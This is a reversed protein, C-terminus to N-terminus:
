IDEKFRFAEQGTIDSSLISPAWYKEIHEVVLETGRFHSVYPPMEPNYMSDTMDRMLVVNIGLNAMQRIAFPRGLVCMNTHVGMIIMNQIDNEMFINYVEQGNDTIYDADHIELGSIQSSWVSREKCPQGNGCPKDCGGDSDDIPLASELETDLHCWQQLDFGEPGRHYPSEVARTRQPSGQYADLTGSPAHIIMVGKDRAATLVQNMAPAMEAVRATASECWHRDWMDSIIIATKNPDWRENKHVEEWQNSGNGTEQRSRLSLHLWEDETANGEHSDPSKCSWLLLLISLLLLLIKPLSNM